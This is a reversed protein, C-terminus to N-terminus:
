TVKRKASVKIELNNFKDIEEKFLEAATLVKDMQEQVEEQNEWTIEVGIEKTSAM